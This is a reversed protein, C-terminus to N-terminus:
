LGWEEKLVVRFQGSKLDGLAIPGYQTRQLRTVRLNVAEAMRRIQRNRGERMRIIFTAPSVLEVQTPLTIRNDIHVGNELAVLAGQSVPKDVKVWYERVHGTGLLSKALVGDSTLLILGESDRDLRGITHLNQYEPPLLDTIQKQGPEPLNSVVGRPKHVAITIPEPEQTEARDLIKVVDTDPDIRTGPTTVVEGNVTIWGNALYREAERRSLVNQNSLFKQIRM